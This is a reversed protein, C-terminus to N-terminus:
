QRMGSVKGFAAKGLGRFRMRSLSQLRLVDPRTEFAAGRDRRRLLEPLPVGITKQKVFKCTPYNSCAVFEGYRGFKQVLNIGANRASRKSRFM